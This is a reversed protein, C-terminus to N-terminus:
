LSTTGSVGHRIRYCGTELVDVALAPHHNLTACEPDCAVRRRGVVQGLLGEDPQVLLEGAAGADVVVHGPQIAGHAVQGEVAQAVALSPSPEELAVAGGQALAGVALSEGGVGQGDLADEGQHSFIDGEHSGIVIEITHLLLLDGVEHTQM